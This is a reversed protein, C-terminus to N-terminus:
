RCSLHFITVHVKPCIGITFIGDWESCLVQFMYSGNQFGMLVVFLDILNELIGMIFFIVGGDFYATQFVVLSCCFWPLSSDDAQNMFEKTKKPKKFTRIRDIKSMKKEPISDNLKGRQYSEVSVKEM